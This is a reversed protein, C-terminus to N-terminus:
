ALLDEDSQGHLTGKLLFRFMEAFNYPNAWVVGPAPQVETLIRRKIFIESEAWM